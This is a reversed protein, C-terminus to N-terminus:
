RRLVPWRWSYVLTCISFIVAPLYPVPGNGGRIIASDQGFTPIMEVSHQYRAALGDRVGTARLM